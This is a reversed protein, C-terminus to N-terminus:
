EMEEAIGILEALLLTWALVAISGSLAAYLCGAVRVGSKILSLYFHRPGPDRGLFQM